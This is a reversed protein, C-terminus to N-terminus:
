AAPTVAREAAPIGTGGAGNRVFAGSAVQTPLSPTLRGSISCQSGHCLGCPSVWVASELVAAFEPQKERLLRRVFRRNEWRLYYTMMSGLMAAGRVSSM